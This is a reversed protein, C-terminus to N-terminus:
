HLLAALGVATSVVISLVTLRKMQRNSKDTQTTLSQSLELMKRSLLVVEANSAAANAVQKASEASLEVLLDTAAAVKSAASLTATAQAILQEGQEKATRRMLELTAIQALLGQGAGVPGSAALEGRKMTARLREETYEIM